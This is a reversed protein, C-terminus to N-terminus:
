VIRPSLSKLSASPPPPLVMWPKNEESRCKRKLNHQYILIHIYIYM